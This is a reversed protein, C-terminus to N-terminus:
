VDKDEIKTRLSAFTDTWTSLLLEAMDSDSVCHTLVMRTGGSRPEFNISYINEDPPIPSTVRATLFCGEYLALYEAQFQGGFASTACLMGGVRADNKADEGVWQRFLTEDTCYRYALSPPVPLQTVVRIEHFVSISSEIGDAVQPCDQPTWFASFKASLNERLREIEPQRLSYYRVNRVSRYTVLGAERLVRLHRSIAPRAVDFHTTLETVSKEGEALLEMLARRRINAVARMSKQGADSNM